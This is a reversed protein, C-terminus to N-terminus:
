ADALMHPDILQRDCWIHRRQRGTFGSPWGHETLRFSLNRQSMQRPAPIGEDTAWARYLAFVDQKLLHDGPAPEFLKLFGTLQDSEQRFGETAGLCASPPNLGHALWDRAGVLCWNLIGPLEAQLKEPLHVDQRENPIRVPWDVLLFRRWFGHDRGQVCPRHNGVLALKASPQYELFDGYSFRGKQRDGGSASKLFNENLRSGATNEEGLAFRRTCLGAIELYPQSGRADRYILSDSMKAGYSGLLRLLVHELFISKGNSGTGFHFPLVHERLSGSLCYGAWRQLFGRVSPDPQVESLFQEFVPATAPPDYSVALHRTILHEPRHPLFNGTSLDLSGNEVGVLLPDPDLSNSALRLAAHCQAFALMPKLRSANGLNATQRLHASTPDDPCRLLAAEYLERAFDGALARIALGSDDRQWGSSDDFILWIKETTIYRIRHRHRAIFADAYGLDSSLPESQPIPTPAPPFQPPEQEQNPFQNPYLNTVSM